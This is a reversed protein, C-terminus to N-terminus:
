AGYVIFTAVIIGIAVVFVVVVVVVIFAVFLVQIVVIFNCYIVIRQMKIDINCAIQM